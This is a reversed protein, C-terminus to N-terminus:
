RLRLDDAVGEVAPEDPLEVAAQRDGRRRGDACRQGRWLVRSWATSLVGGWSNVTATQPLEWVAKGTRIDIARLVRQAPENPAQAFSGGMFGRGAQWEMDNQHLHRVQREDARLLTGHRPQVFQFVLQLCWRAVPVRTPGGAITGHRTGRNAQGAGDLGKAWTVTKVYQRVSSFPAPRATSCTSSAM